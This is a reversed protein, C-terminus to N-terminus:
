FGARKINAIQKTQQPSYELAETEGTLFGSLAQVTNVTEIDHIYISGIETYLGYVTATRIVGKKNDEIKFAWGTDRLTGTQGKKMDNALM